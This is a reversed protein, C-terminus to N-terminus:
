TRPQPLRPKIPSLHRHMVCLLLLTRSRSGSGASSRWGGRHKDVFCRNHLHHAHLGAAAFSANARNTTPTGINAAEFQVKSMFFLPRSIPRSRIKM